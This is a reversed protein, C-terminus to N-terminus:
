RFKVFTDLRWDAFSFALYIALMRCRHVNLVALNFPSGTADYALCNKYYPAKIQWGEGRDSTKEVVINKLDDSMRFMVYRYKHNLKIENFATKCADEVSM